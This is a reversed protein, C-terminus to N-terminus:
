ENSVADINDEEPKQLLLNIYILNDKVTDYDYADMYTLAQSIMARAVEINTM